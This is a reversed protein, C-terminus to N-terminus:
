VPGPIVYNAHMAGAPITTSHTRLDYGAPVKKFAYIVVAHPAGGITETTPGNIQYMLTGTNLSELGAVIAQAETSLATTDAPTHFQGYGIAQQFQSSADVTCVGVYNFLVKAPSATVGLGITPSLVFYAVENEMVVQISDWGTVAQAVNVDDKTIAVSADINTADLHVGPGKDQMFIATLPVKLVYKFGSNEWDKAVTHLNNWLAPKFGIDVVTTPANCCSHARYETKLDGCTKSGESHLVLCFLLTSLM